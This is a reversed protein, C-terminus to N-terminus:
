KIPAENEQPGGNEVREAAPSIDALAVLELRTEDFWHGVQYKGDNDVKPQVFFQRCGTVYSAVATVVGAFGTIRDRVRDEMGLEM